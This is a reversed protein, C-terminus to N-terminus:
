EGSVNSVKGTPANAPDIAIIANNLATVVSVQSDTMAAKLAPLASKAAPGIKGLAYATLQRVVYDEHKLLPILDNVAAAAGPGATALETLAAAKEDTSGKLKQLQVALDVKVRSESSRDGCGSVALALVVAGLTWWVQVLNKM